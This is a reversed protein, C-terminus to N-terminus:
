PPPSTTRQRIVSVQFNRLRATTNAFLGLGVHTIAPSESDYRHSGVVKGDVLFFAKWSPGTTDLVVARTHPGTLSDGRGVSGTQRPGAFCQNRQKVTEHRQMLWAHSLMGVAASATDAFGIGAWGIGGSTAHVDVAVRYICDPEVALPLFAGGASDAVLPEGREWGAVPARWASEGVGGRSVPKTTNLPGDGAFSDRYIVHSAAEDWFYGAPGRPVNAPGRATQPVSRVFRPLPTDSRVAQGRADLEASEGAALRLTAVGAVGTAAFDVLGEFVKVATAGDSGVEVGFETGLDTVVAKPTHVSFRGSTKRGHRAAAGSAIRATLRGRDLMAAAHGKVAFAAPGELVVRAGCAHVIEVLGRALDIREGDKLLDSIRRVKGGEGWAVDHLGTIRAAADGFTAPDFQKAADPGVSWQGMIAAVIAVLVVLSQVAVALPVPRRLMTLWAAIRRGLPPSGAAPRRHEDTRPKPDGVAAGSRGAAQRIATLHQRNRWRLRWRLAADLDAVGLYLAMGAQTQLLAEFRQLDAQVAVGDCVACIVRFAEPDAGAFEGSMGASPSSGSGNM